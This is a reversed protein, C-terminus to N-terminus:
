KNTLKTRNKSKITKIWMSMNQTGNISTQLYQLDFLKLTLVDRDLVSKLKGDTQFLHENM